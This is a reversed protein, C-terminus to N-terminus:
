VQCEANQRCKFRFQQSAPKWAYAHAPRLDAGSTWPCFRRLIKGRDFEEYWALEQGTKLM